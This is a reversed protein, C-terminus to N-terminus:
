GGSFKPLFAVEDDRKVITNTDRVIRRNVALFGEKVFDRVKPYDRALVEILENLSLNDVDLRLVGFGIEERFKAFFKIIPM